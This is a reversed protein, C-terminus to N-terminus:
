QGQDSLIVSTTHFATFITIVLHHLTFVLHHLVVLFFGLSFVPYPLQKVDETRGLLENFESLVELFLLILM